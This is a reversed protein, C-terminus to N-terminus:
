LLQHTNEKTNFVFSQSTNAKYVFAIKCILSCTYHPGPVTVPLKCSQSSSIEKVLKISINKEDGQVKLNCAMVRPQSGVSDEATAVCGQATNFVPFIAFIPAPHQQTSPLFLPRSSGAVGPCGSSSILWWAHQVQHTFGIEAQSYPSFLHHHCSVHGSDSKGIGTDQWSPVPALCAPMTGHFASEEQLCCIPSPWTCAM